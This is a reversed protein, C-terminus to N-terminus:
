TWSKLWWIQFFLSNDPSLFTVYQCKLTFSNTVYLHKSLHWIKVAFSSFFDCLYMIRVTLANSTPKQLPTHWQTHPCGCHYVGSRFGWGLYQDHCCMSVSVEVSETGLSQKASQKYSLVQGLVFINLASKTCQNCIDFVSIWSHM